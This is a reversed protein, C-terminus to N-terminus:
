KERETLMLDAIFYADRVAREIAQENQSFNYNQSSGLAALAGIACSDRLTLECPTVGFTVSEDAGFVPTEESGFIPLQPSFSCAM